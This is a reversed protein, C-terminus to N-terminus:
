GKFEKRQQCNSQNFQIHIQQKSLIRNNIKSLFEQTKITDDETKDFPNLSKASLHNQTKSENSNNSQTLILSDFYSNYNKNYSLGYDFPDINLFPDNNTSM